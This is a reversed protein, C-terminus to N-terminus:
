QEDVCSRLLESFFIIIIIIIIIWAGGGNFGGFNGCGM